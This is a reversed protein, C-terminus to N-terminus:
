PKVLESPVEVVDGLKTTVFCRMAAELPTSGFYHDGMKNYAHARWDAGADPKFRAGTEKTRNCFFGIGERDLIPGGSEWCKAPQLDPGTMYSGTLKGKEDRMLRYVGCWDTRIDDPSVGNAVVAAWNLANGSLHITKVRTTAPKATAPKTM